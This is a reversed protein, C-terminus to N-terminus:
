TSRWTELLRTLAQLHGGSAMNKLDFRIAKVEKKLQFDHQGGTTELTTLLANIDSLVKHTLQMVACVTAGLEAKLDEVFRDAWTPRARVPICSRLGLLSSRADVLLKRCSM